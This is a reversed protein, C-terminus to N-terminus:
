KVQKQLFDVIIEPEEMRGLGVTGCALEGSAPGIFTVGFDKLTKINRQVFPHSFMKNNMSPALFVPKDFAIFTTSLADDAIGAAFKGIINATAPAVLLIDGWDAHSVHESRYDESKQFVDIYVSNHSLNQLVFPTVLNVANQTMIVKVEAGLKVLGRVLEPTKYAAIGGSVGLLIKKGQLM